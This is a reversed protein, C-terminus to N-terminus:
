FADTTALLHFDVIVNAAIASFPSRHGHDSIVIIVNEKESALTPFFLHQLLQRANVIPDFYLFAKTFPRPCKM